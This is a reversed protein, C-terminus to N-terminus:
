DVSSNRYQEVAQFYAASENEISEAKVDGSINILDIDFDFYSIKYGYTTESTVPLIYSYEASTTIVEGQENIIGYVKDEYGIKLYFVLGKLGSIKDQGEAIKLEYKVEPDTSLFAADNYLNKQLGKNINYFYDNSFMVLDNNIYFLEPVGEKVAPIKIYLQKELDYISDNNSEFFVFRDLILDGRDISNSPISIDSIKGKSNAFYIRDGKLLHLLDSEYADIIKDYEVDIIWKQLSANYIGKKHNDDICRFNEFDETYYPVTGDFLVREKTILNYFEREWSSEYLDYEYGKETSRFRYYNNSIIKAPIKKTTQIQYFKTKRGYGHNQYFSDVLSFHVKNEELYSLMNDRTRDIRFISSNKDKRSKNKELFEEDLNNEKLWEKDITLALNTKCDYLDTGEYPKELFFLDGVTNEDLQYSYGEFTELVTGNEDHLTFLYDRTRREKALFYLDGIRTITHYKPPLIYDGDTNIVGYGEKDEKNLKGKVIAIENVFSEAKSFQYSVALTANQDVYGYIRDPSFKSSNGDETSTLFLTRPSSKVNDTLYRGDHYTKTLFKDNILLKYEEDNKYVKFINDNIEEIKKFEFDSYSNLEIDFVAWKQNKQLFIYNEFVKIDDFTADTYFHDGALGKKGNQTFVGFDSSIATFDDVEMIKKEAYTFCQYKGAETEVWFCDKYLYRVGVSIELTKNKFFDYLFYDETGELALYNNRAKAFQGRIASTKGQPIQTFTVGARTAIGYGYSDIDFPIDETLVNVIRGKFDIVVKNYIIYYCRIKKFPSRDYQYGKEKHEWTEFNDDFLLAYYENKVTNQLTWLCYTENFRNTKLGYKKNIHMVYHEMWNDDKEVDSVWHGESDIVGEISNSVVEAYGDIFLQADDFQFPIVTKGKLNLYGWKGNKKASVKGESPVDIMDYIVPIVVRGMEDVLGYKGGKEAIHHGDVKLGVFGDTYVGEFSLDMDYIDDITLRNESRRFVTAGPNKDKLHEFVRRHKEKDVLFSEIYDGRADRDKLDEFSNGLLDILEDFAAEVQESEAVVNKQNEGVTISSAIGKQQQTEEGLFYYKKIPKPNTYSLCLTSLLVVGIILIISKTTKM